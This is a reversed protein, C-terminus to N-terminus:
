KTPYVILPSLPGSEPRGSLLYVSGDSKTYALFSHYEEGVPFARRYIIKITEM